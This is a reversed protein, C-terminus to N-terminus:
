RVLTMLNHSAREAVKRCGKEEMPFKQFIFFGKKRFRGGKISPHRIKM